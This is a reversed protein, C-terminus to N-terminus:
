TNIERFTLTMLHVEPYCSLLTVKIVITVLSRKYRLFRLGQLGLLLLPVRGELRAIQLLGVLQVPSQSAALTM